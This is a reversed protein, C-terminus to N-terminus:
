IFGWMDNMCSLLHRQLLVRDLSTLEQMERLICFFEQRVHNDNALARAPWEAITRLQDNTCELAMLIVELEAERQSERKRKSGSSGVRVESTRFPQLAHVDEESMNIGDAFTKTFHGTARNCGFVYALEDYYPFLKNLLRKALPHSQCSRGNDSKWGGQVGFGSFVRCSHRGGGEDMCEKPGRSSTAM